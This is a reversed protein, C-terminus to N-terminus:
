ASHCRSDARRPLEGNCISFLRMEWLEASRGVEQEGLTQIIPFLPPTRTAGTIDVRLLMFPVRPKLDHREAMRDM